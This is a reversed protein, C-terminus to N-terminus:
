IDCFDSSFKILFDFFFGGVYQGMTKWVLVNQKSNLNEELYWYNEFNRTFLIIIIKYTCM